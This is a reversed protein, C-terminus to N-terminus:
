MNPPFLGFLFAWLSFLAGGAIRLLEFRWQLLRVPLYNVFLIWCTLGPFRITVHLGGDNMWVCVQLVSKVLDIGIVKIANM